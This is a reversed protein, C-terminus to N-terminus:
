SKREQNINNKNLDNNFNLYTEKSKNFKESIEKTTPIVRKNLIYFVESITSM